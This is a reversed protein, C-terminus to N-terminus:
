VGGSRVPDSGDWGKAANEVVMFMDKFVQDNDWLEIFHGVTAVTDFYTLPAGGVTCEFAAEHGHARYQACTAAYDVPMMGFHHVGERGADLFEKYVSPADNECYILEIQVDGTNGLAVTVDVNSAGGRYRQNELALHEFKFFPGVKLVETWYKLAADLDRVVYALQRLTYLPQTM